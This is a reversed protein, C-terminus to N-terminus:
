RDLEGCLGGALGTFVRSLIFACRRYRTVRIGLCMARTENHRIAQLAQGFPSHIIRWMLLLCVGFTVVIVGYFASQFARPTFEIGLITLRPIHLDGGGLLFLGRGLRGFPRFIIGSIFLSHVMQAFALTLTAFHIRTARVCLL